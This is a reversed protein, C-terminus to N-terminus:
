SGDNVDLSFTNHMGATLSAGAQYLTSAHSLRKKTM